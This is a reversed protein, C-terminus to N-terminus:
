LTSPDQNDVGFYTATRNTFTRHSNFGGASWVTDVTIMQMLVQTQVNLNFLKITVINTAIVANNTGSLPLDLVNTMWGSGTGGQATTTWSWGKLNLNTIQNKPPNFSTDWVAARAQEITQISLSEAALTYGAWQAQRASQIYAKLIGGFAVTLIALAVMVEALTFARVWRKGSSIRPAETTRMITRSNSIDGSIPKGM